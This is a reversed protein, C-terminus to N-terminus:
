GVLEEGTSASGLASALASGPASRGAGLGAAWGAAAAVAELAGAVGLGVETYLGGEADRCIVSLSASTRHLVPVCDHVHTTSMLHTIM